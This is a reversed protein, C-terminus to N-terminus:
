LPEGDPGLLLSSNPNIFSVQEGWHRIENSAPLPQFNMRRMVTDIHQWQERRFLNDLSIGHLLARSVAIDRYNIAPRNEGEYSIEHEELMKGVALAYDFMCHAWLEDKMSYIRCVKMFRPPELAISHKTM